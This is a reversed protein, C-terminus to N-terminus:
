KLSTATVESGAGFPAKTKAEPSLAAKTSSLLTSPTLPTATGESNTCLVKAKAERSLRPKARHFASIKAEGSAFDLSGDRGEYSVIFKAILMAKASATKPGCPVKTVERAIHRQQSQTLSLCLRNLRAHPQSLNV